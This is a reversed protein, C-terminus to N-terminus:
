HGAKIKLAVIDLSFLVTSVIVISVVVLMVFSLLSQAFITLSKSVLCVPTVHLGLSHYDTDYLMLASFLSALGAQLLLFFELMM